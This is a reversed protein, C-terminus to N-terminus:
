TAQGRKRTNLKAYILIEKYVIVGYTQPRGRKQSRQPNNKFVQESEKVRWEILTVLWIWGVQESFPLTDLDGFLQM